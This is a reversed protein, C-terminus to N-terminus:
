RSPVGVKAGPLDSSHAQPGLWALTLQPRPINGVALRRRNFTTSFGTVEFNSNLSVSVDQFNAM